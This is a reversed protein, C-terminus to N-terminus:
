AKNGLLNCRTDAWGDGVMQKKAMALKKSIEVRGKEWLDKEV